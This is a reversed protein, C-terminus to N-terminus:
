IPLRLLRRENDEPIKKKDVDPIDMQEMAKITHRTGYGGFWADYPAHTGILTREAVLFTM